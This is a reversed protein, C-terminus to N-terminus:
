VSQLTRRIYRILKNPIVRNSDYMTVAENFRDNLISDNIICYYFGYIVNQDLTGLFSEYQAVTTFHEIVNYQTSQYGLINWLKLFFQYKTYIWNAGDQDENWANFEDTLTSIDQRIINVVQIAVIESNM